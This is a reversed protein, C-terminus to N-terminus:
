HLNGHTTQKKDKAEECAEARCVASRGVEGKGALRDVAPVAVHPV